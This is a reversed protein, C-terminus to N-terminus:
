GQHSSWWYHSLNQMLQFPPAPFPPRTETSHQILMCPQKESPRSQVSHAMERRKQVFPSLFYNEPRKPAGTQEPLWQSLAMFLSPSITNMHHIKNVSVTPWVPMAIWVGVDGMGIDPINSNNSSYIVGVDTVCAHSNHSKSGSTFKCWNFQLM